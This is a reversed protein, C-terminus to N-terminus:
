SNGGFSPLNMFNFPHRRRGPKPGTGLFQEISVPPGIPVSPSCRPKPIAEVGHALLERQLKAYAALDSLDGAKADAPADPAAAALREVEPQPVTVEVVREVVQPEGRAVLSVVLAALLAASVSPWAWRWRGVSARGAAFLLRDRDISTPAAQLASLAEELEREAPTLSERGDM